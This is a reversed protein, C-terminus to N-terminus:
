DRVGYDKRFPVTGFSYLISMTMTDETFDFGISVGYDPLLLVQGCNEHVLKMEVM